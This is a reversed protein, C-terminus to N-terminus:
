GPLDPPSLPGVMIAAECCEYHGVNGCYAPNVSSADCSCPCPDSVVGGGSGGDNTAVEDGSTGSGNTGNGQTPESTTANSCATVGSVLALAQAFRLWRPESKM